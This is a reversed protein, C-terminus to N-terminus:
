KNSRIWIKQKEAEKILEEHFDPHAISILDEARRRVSKAMLNVKGYETVIYMPITRPLTVINGPSIFPVIRSVIRGDKLTRTSPLCIFSKGGAAGAAGLGFDLQGGTGSIQTFDVSESSVQGTIDVSLANNISIQKHNQAVIQPANCKDVPFTACAPNRDLFDYLRQSGLAFTYVMKGRDKSKYRGTIKGKEYLDVFADCMMESQVGLDKLGADAIIHGIYNSLGGIGLQLTCGDEIEEVIFDAIKKQVETAPIDQPFAVMPYDSEVVHTVESVHVCEQEGGLCYPAKDNAEVVVQDAWDCLARTFTCSTGFNFFGHSDMATTKIFVARIEGALGLRVRAPSDHFLGPMHFCRDGLKRDFPSLFGSHYIFHEYKPDVMACEVTQMPCVSGVEVNSLEDKRRALAADLLKPFMAFHGFAVLDGSQVVRVAEEASVLKQKYEGAFNNAM